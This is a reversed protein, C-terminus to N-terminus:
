VHDAHQNTERAETSRLNGGEEAGGHGQSQGIRAEALVLYKPKEPNEPDPVERVIRIVGDKPIKVPESTMFRPLELRTSDKGSMVQVPNELDDPISTCAFWAARSPKRPKDGDPEAQGALPLIGAFLLCLSFLAKRM